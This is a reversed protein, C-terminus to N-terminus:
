LTRKLQNLRAQAVAARATLRHELQEGPQNRLARQAKLEDLLLPNLKELQKDYYRPPKQATGNLIVQDSPYVDDFYTEIWKAAIGPRRSMQTFEPKRAIIEGTAPDTHTYAQAQGYAKKMVYRAVYAATAYNVQGITAFGHPWLKDLIPSRYLKAQDHRIPERDPFNFGFLCAHFHPRLRLEGYEGCMFFRISCGKFKRRLRRMFAQFHKYNLNAGPPIERYTLTIFANEEHLSAEHM